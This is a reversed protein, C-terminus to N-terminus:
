RRTDKAIISITPIEQTSNNSVTGTIVDSINRHQYKHDTIIVYKSNVAYGKVNRAGDDPQALASGYIVPFFHVLIIGLIVLKIPILRRCV